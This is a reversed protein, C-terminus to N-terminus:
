RITEWTAKQKGSVWDLFGLFMIFNLFLFWVITKVINIRFSNIHIVRLYLLLVLIICIIEIILLIYFYNFFLACVITLLVFFLLLFPTIWRIYRHSILYFLVNKKSFNFSKLLSMIQYHGASDRRYRRIEARVDDHKKKYGIAEKVFVSYFDKTFTKMSIYFDDNIVDTPLSGIIEKKIAYLGGSAGISYGLSSELSKIKKELREIMSEKVNKNDKYFIINGSVCGIKSNRDFEAILYSISKKDLMVAADTFVLIESSANEILKKLVNFKGLRKFKFVKINLKESSYAKIKEYTSDTSGDDGILLEIKEIPYDLQEINKIKDIINKEENYASIIISIKPISKQNIKDSKLMPKIKKMLLLLLPYFLYPYIILIGIIFMLVIFINIM